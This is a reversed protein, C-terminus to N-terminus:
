TVIVHSSHQVQTAQPRHVSDAPHAAPLLVTDRGGRAAGEVQDPDCPM